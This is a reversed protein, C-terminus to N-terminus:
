STKIETLATFGSLTSHPYATDSPYLLYGPAEPPSEFRLREDQHLPIVTERDKNALRLM